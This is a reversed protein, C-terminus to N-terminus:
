RASTLILRTLGRIVVFWFGGCFAALALWGLLLTWDLRFENTRARKSM